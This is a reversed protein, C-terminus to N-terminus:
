KKLQALLARPEDLYSAAVKAKEGIAIARELLPRADQTRGQAIKAQALGTLPRWLEAADKGASKEYGAIAREDFAVADAWQKEVRALRARATLAAPLYPSQLREGIRLATELQPRADAIRNARLLIEGYTTTVSVFYPHARGVTQETLKQAREILALAATTNGDDKYLEAFNNLTPILVPSNAGFVRERIDLARQFAAYAKQPENTYHYCSGLGSQLIAVDPHEAGAYFKTVIQLAHEYHATAAAYDGAGILSAGLLQEARSVLIHDRGYLQLALALAQEHARVAGILDGRTGAVVGAIQLRQQELRPHKGSRASAAAGLDLWIQAEEPKSLGEATALANHVAALSVIDDRHGRLGAWTSAALATHADNTNGVNVLAMGLTMQAEAELPDFGIDHALKAADTSANIARGFNGAYMGAKADSLREIVQQIKPRQEATPQTPARLAAVDACREIPELQLAGASAKEVAVDDATALLKTFARLEALRQDLCDQRLTMVEETQEGHIRTAECTETAAKTWDASYADLAGALAAYARDKFPRTSKGFADHLSQKVAPDWAGALRREAGKCVLADANDRSSLMAVSALAAGVALVSGTAFVARRRRQFPDIALEGLLADLSAYRAAPDIAIARLVVRHLRAPVRSDPPPPKPVPVQSRPAVLQKRQFPRQRYLAEYLTVGFAFLDTRASAAVGDYIEPAMYAPTGVVAGAITLHESLPSRSEISLDSSRSAPEEGDLRALGFDMVRVRGDTGVLVNEPKFDRHVLGAAHAAALGRGAELMVRQVARWDPERHRKIWARLTEGEVLEIAVFVRDGPLTGVDHVAVVNPHSLRALAQAERVLWAQDGGPSSGGAPKAQLLKIAVKRDLEPDYAAYVVGMGGEGLVDLIVYRGVSEGRALKPGAAERRRRRRESAVGERVTAETPGPVQPLDAVTRTGSVLEDLEDDTLDESM